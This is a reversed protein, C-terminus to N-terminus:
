RFAVPGEQTASRYITSPPRSTRPASASSSAPSRSGSGPTTPGSASSPRTNPRSSPRSTPEGQLLQGADPPAPAVLPALAQGPGRGPRGAGEAQGLRRPGPDGAGPLPRRPRHIQGLALSALPTPKRLVQLAIQSATEADGQRRYQTMLGLLADVDNGSRRRARALVADALDNMGLQRMQAALQLQSTGDLRLGFLREAAIAARDTRGLAGAVRLALSERRKVVDQDTAEISDLVAMAEEPEKRQFRSEALALKLESDGPVLAVAKTFEVVAADQEDAWWLVAALALRGQVDAPDADALKRLHDKLEPLMGDRQYLAFAERLVQIAEHGLSPNATPYGVVMLTM